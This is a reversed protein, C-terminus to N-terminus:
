RKEPPPGSESKYFIRCRTLAEKKIRPGIAGIKFVIKSFSFLFSRCCTANRGRGPKHGHEKRALIVQEGHIEDVEVGM